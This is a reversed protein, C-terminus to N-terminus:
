INYCKKKRLDIIDQCQEEIFRAKNTLLMVIRSLQDILNKKRLKYGNFRELFYENIISYVTDYKKLRQNKDFLYMNTESKTTILKLKKELMNCGHDINKTILKQMESSHFKVIIEVTADTSLDVIEKILPTVKKGRKDKDEMLSELYNKYDVTWTGVPLETIKITRWDMKKWIGADLGIIM